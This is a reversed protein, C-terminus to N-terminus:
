HKRKQRVVGFGLSVNKGLGIYTPLFMNAQFHLNFALTKIGKINVTHPEQINIIKVKLPTQEKPPLTWHIGKAFAIMNGVLISELKTLREALGTLAKYEAYSKQDLAVWHRIEYDFSKDSVQMTFNNMDLKAIKMELHRNGVCISWDRQEFFKHIEDVGEHLCLLTPRKSVVKYQILPYRYNFKNDDLHNHFLLTNERGVKANIAGRFAPVEFPAITSDFEVRLIKLKALMM